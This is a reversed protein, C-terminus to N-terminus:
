FSYLNWWENVLEEFVKEIKKRTINEVIKSENIILVSKTFMGYKRVYSFDKGAKYIKVDLINEYKRGLEEVFPTYADCWACANIFEVLIKKM